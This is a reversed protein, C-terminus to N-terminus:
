VFEGLVRDKPNVNTLSAKNINDHLHTVLKNLNQFPNNGFILKELSDYLATVNKTYSECDGQELCNLIDKVPALYEDPTSYVFM